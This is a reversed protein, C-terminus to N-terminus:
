QSYNTELTAHGGNIMPLMSNNLELTNQLTSHVKSNPNNMQSAYKVQKGEHEIQYNANAEDESTKQVPRIFTKLHYDINYPQRSENNVKNDTLQNYKNKASNISMNTLYGTIKENQIPKAYKPYDKMFQPVKSTYSQKSVSQSRYSNLENAPSRNSSGPMAQFVQGNLVEKNRVKNRNFNQTTNFAINGINVKNIQLVSSTTARSHKQDLKQHQVM